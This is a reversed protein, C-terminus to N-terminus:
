GREGSANASAKLRSNAKAHQRRSSRKAGSWFSGGPSPPPTYITESKLWHLQNELKSPNIINIIKPKIEFFELIFMATKDTWMTTNAFSLKESQGNAFSLKEWKVQVENNRPKLSTNTPMLGTVTFMLFSKFGFTNPHKQPTHTRWPFICKANLKAPVPIWLLFSGMAEISSGPAVVSPNGLVTTKATSRNKPYLRLTERIDLCELGVTSKWVIQQTSHTVVGSVNALISSNRCEHLIVTEYMWTHKLNDSLKENKQSTVLFCLPFQHISQLQIPFQKFLIQHATSNSTGSKM